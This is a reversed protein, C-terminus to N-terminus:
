WWSGERCFFSVNDYDRNAMAKRNKARFRSSANKKLWRTDKKGGDVGHKGDRKCNRMSYYDWYQSGWFTYKESVIPIHNNNLCVVRRRYTRSM